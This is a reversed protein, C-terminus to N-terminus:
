VLSLRTLLREMLPTPEARFEEAVMRYSRYQRIAEVTNGEALYAEILVRHASERLQDGSIALLGVEVAEAYKRAVTLRECLAELAHLRLQHFRQSEILLWADDWGPLLDVSLLEDSLDTDESDNTPDILRRAVARAERVDVAVHPALRMRDSASEILPLGPERLRWLASRLSAAAREETTDSWLMGAVLSRPQWHDKLALFAALRQAALPVAVSDGRRRLDFGGLLKVSV